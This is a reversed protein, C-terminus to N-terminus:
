VFAEFLSVAYYGKLTPYSLCLLHNIYPSMVCELSICRPNKKLDSVCLSAEGRAQLFHLRLSFLNLTVRAELKARGQFVVLKSCELTDDFRPRKEQLSPPFGQKRGSM